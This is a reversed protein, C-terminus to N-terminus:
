GLIPSTIWGAEPKDRYNEPQCESGKQCPGLVM